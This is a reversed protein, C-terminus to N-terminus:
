KAPYVEISVFRVQAALKAIEVSTAPTDLVITCVTGDVTVTCGELTFSSSFNKSGGTTIVLKEINATYEIIIQSGAYFRAPNAYDAVNSTSAGKNNTVKIGNQEWVQHSTDFETRNAKDNFKITVVGEVVEKDYSTDHGTVVATSGQALQKAENYSGIVGTVTVIDGLQVQTSLRFLYFTGSEDKLTVNMNKYYTDWDGDIAHITGKLIVETGDELTAAEACTVEKPGTAEHGACKEAAEGPCEPDTCLGCEPCAVHTHAPVEPQEPATQGAGLWAINWITARDKNGSLANPCNNVIEIVFEGEVAFELVYERVVYKEKSPNDYEVVESKLVNGAADKINVTVSFKTDTFLNTYNFTLKALGGALVPSTLKGPDKDTGGRLTVAFTNEDGLFGFVPNANTEPNVAGQNLASNVVAWGNASTFNVYSSSAKGNNMTNLDAVGGGTVEPTEGQHGACKEAEEGPCEPDTCLGCEPCAVHTHEPEPTEGSGATLVVLQANKLQATGNYNGLVGRIIVTDGVQPQVEMADFRTAGDATYLGYVYLTGTADQIYLNGYKTNAIETVVGKAYYLTETYVNHERAVANATIGATSKPDNTEVLTGNKMQAANYYGLIGYVTVFDGVQPKYELADYRNGKYDYTGYILIENTGDTIVINGYKDNQVEKVTGQIAYKAETYVNKETGGLAIAEPITVVDYYEALWSNKMQPTGNYAGLIGYLTVLDGVQPKAELADYRTAGDSSYMGYVYLKGTADEIYVNGYKDNAVETVIGQVYYKGETYVNHETGALAIAEAITIINLKAAPVKVEFEKSASASGITVTVKLTVVEDGEGRTVKAVGNEIVITAGSVVEWAYGEGAALEFDEEAQAPVSIAALAVTVKEEDTLTPAEAEEIIGDWLIENKQLRSDRDYTVGHLKVYKGVYQQLVAEMEADYAKYYIWLKEGTKADAVHYKDSSGGTAAENVLLGYVNVLEGGYYGAKVLGKDNRAAGEDELEQPTTERYEAELEAGKELISVSINSGFQLAGYYSYIEGIVNVKDGVELGEATAYVYIGETGDHIMFQGSGSANLKATVIGTVSANFVVSSNSVLERQVGQEDYIYKAAAAKVEAISGAKTGEAVTAITFVFEKELEIEKSYEKGSIEWEAVATITATMTVPVAKVASATETAEEVVVARPDEYDPRTVNGEIDLVDPESSEWEVTVNAYKTKTIFGKVNSTVQSMATKDWILQAQIEEAKATADAIAEGSPDTAGGTCGVLAFVCVLVLLLSFLRTGFKTKLM